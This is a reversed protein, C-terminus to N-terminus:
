NRLVEHVTAGSQLASALHHAMRWANRLLRQPTGYDAGSLKARQSM